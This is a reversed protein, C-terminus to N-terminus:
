MEEEKLCQECVGSFLVEASDIKIHKGQEIAALVGAFIKDGIDVITGCHKCSMHAHMSLTRDYRDAGGAIQIHKIKSASSLQGLLRYVTGLSINPVDAKARMFITEATPHDCSSHVVKLVAQSQLTNRM